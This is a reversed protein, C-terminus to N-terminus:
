YWKSENTPPPEARPISYMIDGEYNPDAMGFLLFIGDGLPALYLCGGYQRALTYREVIESQGRVRVQVDITDGEPRLTMRFTETDGVPEYYVKFEWSAGVSWKEWTAWAYGREELGSASGLVWIPSDDCYAPAPQANAIGTCVVLLLAALLALVFSPAVKGVVRAM